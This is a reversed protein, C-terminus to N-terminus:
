GTAGGSKEGPSNVEGDKKKGADGNGEQAKKAEADEREKKRRAQVERLRTLQEAAREQVARIFQEDEPAWMKVLPHNRGKAQQVLQKVQSPDFNLLTDLEEPFQALRTVADQAVHIAPIQVDGVMDDALRELWRGVNQYKGGQFTGWDIGVPGEQDTSTDEGRRGRRGAFPDDKIAGSNRLLTDVADIARTGLDGALDYGTKGTSSVPASAAERRELGLERALIKAKDLEEQLTLREPEKRKALDKELAGLERQLTDIKLWEGAAKLDLANFKDLLNQLNAAKATSEKLNAVEVRLASVEGALDKAREGQLARAVEEAVSLGSSHYGNGGNNMRGLAAEVARTLADPTVPDPDRQQKAVRSVPRSDDEEGEEEAQGGMLMRARKAQDPLVDFQGSAPMNEPVHPAFEGRRANRVQGAIARTTRVRWEYRGAGHVGVLVPDPEGWPQDHLVVVTEFGARPASAGEVEQTKWKRIQLTWIPAGQLPETVPEGEEDYGLVGSPLSTAEQVM